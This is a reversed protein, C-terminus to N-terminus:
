VGRHLIRDAQKVTKNGPMDVATVEITVALETAPVTTLATYTWQDPELSPEAQGEEFIQGAINRIAVTLSSVKVDDAAKIRVLDGAQGNYGSPDIETITPPTLSDGIALNWESRNKQRAAPTYAAKKTPNALVEKGYQKAKSFGSQTVLQPKTWKTSLKRQYPKRIVQKDKYNAFEMDGINGSIKGTIPHNTSKAM